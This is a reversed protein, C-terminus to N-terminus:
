FSSSKQSDKPAGSTASGSNEGGLSKLSIEMQELRTLLDLDKKKKGAEYASFRTRMEKVSLNSNEDLGEFM